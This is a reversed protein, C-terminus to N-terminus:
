GNITLSPTTCKTDVKPLATMFSPTPPTHPVRERASSYLSPSPRTLPRAWVGLSPISGLSPSVLRSQFIM